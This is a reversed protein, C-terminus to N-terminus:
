ARFLRREAFRHTEGWAEIQPGSCAPIDDPATVSAVRSALAEVEAAVGAAWRVAVAPDFPDLKMAASIVTQVDEYAILRALETSSLGTVAATAGMVVSRCWPPGTTPLVVPWVAGVTRLLSHALLDSADRLARSPTRVRWAEDVDRLATFRVPGDTELWVSRAVVSAAAEVLTVTSLRAQLYNPVQSVKMGSLMAPEVGASQTHAGSPFRGDALLMAHYAASAM